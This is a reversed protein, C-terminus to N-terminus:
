RAMSYIKGIDEMNLIQFNGITRTNKFSCKYALEHIQEDTLEVGMERISTPMGIFRYFDEMAKIGELATKEPNSFDNLV